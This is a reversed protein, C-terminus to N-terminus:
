RYDDPGMVEGAPAVPAAAAAMQAQAEAEGATGEGFAVPAMQRRAQAEGTTGDPTWM